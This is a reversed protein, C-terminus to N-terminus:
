IAGREFLTKLTVIIKVSPVEGQKPAEAVRNPPKQILYEM